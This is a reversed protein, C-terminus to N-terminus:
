SNNDDSKKQNNITFKKAYYMQVSDITLEIKSLKKFEKGLLKTKDSLESYGSEIISNINFVVKDRDAIFQSLTALIMKSKNEESQIKIEEM